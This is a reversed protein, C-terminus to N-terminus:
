EKKLDMLIRDVQQQMNDVDFYKFGIQIQEEASGPSFKKNEYEKFTPILKQINLLLKRNFKFDTDPYKMIFAYCGFTGEKM